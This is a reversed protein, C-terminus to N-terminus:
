KAFTCIIRRWFTPLPRPQKWHKLCSLRNSNPAMTFSPFHKYKASDNNKSSSQRIVMSRYFLSFLGRMVVLGGILGDRIPIVGIVKLRHRWALHQSQTSEQIMEERIDLCPINRWLDFVPPKV